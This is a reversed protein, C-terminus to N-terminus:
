CANRQRNGKNVNANSSVLQSVSVPDSGAMSRELGRVLKQEELDKPGQQKSKVPEHADAGHKKASPHIMEFESANGNQDVGSWSKHEKFASSYSM